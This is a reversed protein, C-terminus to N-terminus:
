LVNHASVAVDIGQVINRKRDLLAFQNGDDSGVAGSLGGGELRNRAQQIGDFAADVEHAFVNGSGAGLVDNRHTDRVARFSPPHKGLHGHVFVKFDAR